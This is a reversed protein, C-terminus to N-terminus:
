ETTEKRKSRRRIEEKQKQLVLVVFELVVLCLFVCSVLSQFYFYNANGSRADLWLYRMVPMLVGSVSLGLGLVLQKSGGISATPHFLSWVLALRRLDLNAGFITVICAM